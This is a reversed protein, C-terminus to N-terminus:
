EPEGQNNIVLMFELQEINEVPNLYVLLFSSNQHTVDSVIAVPHGKPFSDDLGSTVFLDGVKIDIGAPLFNIQLQHKTTAVGQAITRINNRQNKISIYHSPDTINLLTAHNFTTDIIKGVVGSVGIVAQGIKVGDASGKNILFEKKFRSHAISSVGALISNSRKIQYRTHLIKKLQKLEILTANLTQLQAKIAKNEHTIKRVQALLKEKNQGQEQVWLYFHSPMEILYYIPTIVFSLHGRISAVSPSLWLVCLALIIPLIHPQIRQQPNM